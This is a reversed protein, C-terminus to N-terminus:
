QLPFSSCAGTEFMRVVGFPMGEGTDRSLSMFITDYIMMLHLNRRQAENKIENFKVIKKEVDDFECSFEDWRGRFVARHYM